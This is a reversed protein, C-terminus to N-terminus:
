VFCFAQVFGTGNVGVASRQWAEHGKEWSSIFAYGIEVGRRSVVNSSLLWEVCGILGSTM